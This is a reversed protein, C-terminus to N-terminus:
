SKIPTQYSSQLPRSSIQQKFNNNTTINENRSLAELIEARDFLFNFLTHNNLKYTLM